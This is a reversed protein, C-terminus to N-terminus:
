KIGKSYAIFEKFDIVYNYNDLFDGGLIGHMDINFDRKIIEIQKSLQSTVIFSANYPEQKYFMVLECHKNNQFTTGAGVTKVDEIDNPKIKLLELTEPSIHSYSSGTDLLFHLKKGKCTFSIIPVNLLDMTEKFSIKDYNKDRDFVRVVVGILVLVLLIVIIKLIM